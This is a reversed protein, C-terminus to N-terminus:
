HLKIVGLYTETPSDSIKAAPECIVTLTEGRNMSIGVGMFGTSLKPKNILGKLITKRNNSDVTITYNKTMQPNLTVQLYLFYRGEDKVRLEKDGEIFGSPSVTKWQLKEVMDRGDGTFLYNPSFTILNMDMVKPQQTPIRQDQLKEPAPPKREIFHLTISAALGLTLLTAWVLLGRIMKRQHALAGGGGGRDGTNDSCYEASLSM